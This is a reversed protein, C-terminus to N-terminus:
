KHFKAEYKPAVLVYGRVLLVALAESFLKDAYHQTKRM